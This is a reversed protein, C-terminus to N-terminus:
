RAADLAARITRVTEVPRLTLDDWTFRLVRWGQAMLRNDRRRDSERASLGDHYRAGDLEVVLRAERWYCDVRGILDDDGLHVEFEPTPLGGEVFVKRGIRELETAPPVYGEGREELLTRMAVTGRRGQGALAFFVQNVQRLTCMKRSIAFDLAKGVRQEHLIGALDFLTRAITTVPIDDRAVIHRKPLLLTGYVLGLETRRNRAHEILVSPLATSFTPVGWLDAAAEHCTPAVPRHALGAALLAQARTRPAAEVRYVGRAVKSCWGTELLVRLTSRPLGLGDFQERTFLGHQRRATRALLATPTPM